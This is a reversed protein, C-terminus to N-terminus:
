RSIVPVIDKYGARVGAKFVEWEVILVILLMAAMGLLFAIMDRKTIDPKKM